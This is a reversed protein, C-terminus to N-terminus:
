VGNEYKHLGKCIFKGAWPELRRFDYSYDEDDYIMEFESIHNCLKSNLKKADLM